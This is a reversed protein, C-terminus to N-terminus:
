PFNTAFKLVDGVVFEVVERMGWRVQFPVNQRLDDPLIFDVIFRRVSGAELVFDPVVDGLVRNYVVVDFLIDVLCFPLSEAVAHVPTYIRALTGAVTFVFLQLIRGILLTHRRPRTGHNCNLRARGGGYVLHETKTLTMRSAGAVFVQALIIKNCGFVFLLKFNTYPPQSFLQYIKFTTM